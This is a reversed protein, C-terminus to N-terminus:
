STIMNEKAKRNSSNLYMYIMINVIILVICGSVGMIGNVLTNGGVIYMISTAGIANIVGHTFSAAVVSETKLRILTFLPSVLTTFVIMMFVGIIPYGPYNHGQVIIPAHWIGWILGIFLSMKWFGLYELKNYLYGRWGLEEGFAAVANITVGAIISQVLITFIIMWPNNTVQEKITQFEEPSMVNEYHKIFDVMELSFSANPFITNVPIALFNIPIFILIAFIFWKNPRLRIGLDKIKIGERKTMVIAVIAPIWMYSARTSFFPFGSQIKLVNFTIVAYITSIVITIFSYKIAKEM